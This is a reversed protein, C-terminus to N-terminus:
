PVKSLHRPRRESQQPLRRDQWTRMSQSPKRMCRARRPLSRQVALILRDPESGPPPRATKNGLRIDSASDAYAAGVQVREHTEATGSSVTVDYTGPSINYLAFSGSSDSSRRSTRPEASSARPGRDQCQQRCPRRLHARNWYNPRYQIRQRPLDDFPILFAPRARSRTM